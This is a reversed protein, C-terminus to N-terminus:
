LMVLFLCFNAFHETYRSILILHLVCAFTWTYSWIDACRTESSSWSINVSAPSSFTCFRTSLLSCTFRPFCSVMYLTHIWHLYRLAGARVGGRASGLQAWVCMKVDAVRKSFDLRKSEDAVTHFHVANIYNRNFHSSEDHQHTKYSQPSVLHQTWNRNM